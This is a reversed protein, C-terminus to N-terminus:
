REGIIIPAQRIFSNDQLLQVVAAAVRRRPTLMEAPGHLNLRVKGVHRGGTLKLVRVLTWDLQSSKLLEAHAVGDAIREPDIMKIAMNALRDIIGPKDADFRVGTGTLSIFRVIGRKRVAALITKTADTQVWAPSGPRHGIMSVVADVGELLNGVQKKDTADCVVVELNKHYAFEAQGYVGARVQMGADLAADVFARGSRGNAAIVAVKM